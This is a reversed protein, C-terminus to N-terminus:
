NYNRQSQEFEGELQKHLYVKSKAVLFKLNLQNSKFYARPM